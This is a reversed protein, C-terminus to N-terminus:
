RDNHKGDAVERGRKYYFLYQQIYGGNEGFRDAFYAAIKERDKEKGGFDERYVKEIWTDVPFAGSDHFGFLAVCDAVKPGVGPFRMLARRLEGGRLKALAAVGERAVRRATEAMYKARYGAGASLYFAEDREALKEATPFARYREGMFMREEGLADCLREIIARIRPIRNNQSLIFSFLAEEPDQNLIRIGKGCEAAASLVTVGANKAERVIKEYDRSLDFYNEFFGADEDGCVIHVFGGEKFLRCARDKAYVTFGGGCPRFRFVQGCCLTQAPDFYESPLRIEKM